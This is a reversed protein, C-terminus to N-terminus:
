TKPGTPKSEKLSLLEARKAAVAAEASELKAFQEALAAPPQVMELATEPYWLITPPRGHKGEFIVEACREGPGETTGPAGTAKRGDPKDSPDRLEPRDTFTRTYGIGGKEARNSRTSAKSQHVTTWTLYPHQDFLGKINYRPQCHTSGKLSERTWSIGTSEDVLMQDFAKKMGDVKRQADRVESTLQQARSGTSAQLASYQRAYRLTSGTEVPHAPHVAAMMCVRASTGSIADKLLWTLASDRYPVHECKGSSLASVVRGLASLSLNIHEGEKLQDKDTAYMGSRESGALDVIYLRTERRNRRITIMVVAHSRSSRPNFVTKGVTRSAAGACLWTHVQSEMNGMECSKRTLGQPVCHHESSRQKPLAKGGDLLDFLENNYVELFSLEVAPPEGSFHSDRLLIALRQMARFALGSSKAGKELSGFMTHTKGSGTQGYALLCVHEGNLTHHLIEGIIYDCVDEQSANGPFARDFFFSNCGGAGAGAVSVRGQEGEGQGFSLCGFGQSPDLPRARVVVWVRKCKLRKGALHSDLANRLEDGEKLRKALVRRFGTCVRRFAPLVSVQLCETMAFLISLPIRVGGVDACQVNKPPPPIRGKGARGKQQAEAADQADAEGDSGVDSGAASDRPSEPMRSHMTRTPGPPGRGRGSGPPRREGDGRASLPAGSAGTGPRSTPLPPRSNISVNFVMPEQEM